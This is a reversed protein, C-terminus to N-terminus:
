PRSACAAAGGGGRRWRRTGGGVTHRREAIARDTSESIFSNLFAIIYNESFGSSWAEPLVRVGRDTESLGGIVGVQHPTPGISEEKTGPTEEPSCRGCATACARSSCGERVEAGM